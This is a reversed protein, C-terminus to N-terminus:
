DPILGLSLAKASLIASAILQATFVVAGFVKRLGSGQTEQYEEENIM